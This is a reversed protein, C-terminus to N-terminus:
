ALIGNKLDEVKKDLEQISKVIPAILEGYDVVLYGNDVKKVIAYNSDNLVKKIDQALFGLHVLDNDDILGNENKQKYQFSCPKLKNIFDLGFNNNEM